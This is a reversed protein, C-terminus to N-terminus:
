DPLPPRGKDKPLQYFRQTPYALDLEPHADFADLIDEWLSQATGRRGRPPSLYRVTLLVGHDVVSTYVIPTLKSYFIMYKAAARKLERAAEEGLHGSYREAIEQLLAKALRWDSEFTVVVELENWIFQFGKTYNAVAHRFVWGNPVHIVRGTSQDAHVWNGIEMLTFQFLRLDIVDGARGDVEIRDGMEFPRRWLIFLWGALDELLDKLAIALGASLLGLYTAMSDMGEVWLWWLLVLGLVSVFYGSAKQWRYRQRVDDSARFVLVLVGRRVAWLVLVLGITLGLRGRYGHGLEFLAQWLDTV